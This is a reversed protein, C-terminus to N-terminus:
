RWHDGRDRSTRGAAAYENGYVLRPGPRHFGEFFRRHIRDHRSRCLQGGKSRPASSWGYGRLDMAVVHFRKALEGAIRAWMLHSQPFGHLLLLPESAPDGGSRAFIRGADTDIWHSEFGPFLDAM